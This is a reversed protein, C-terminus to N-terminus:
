HTCLGEFAGQEQTTKGSRSFLTAQIKRSSANAAQIASEVVHPALPELWAELCSLGASSVTPDVAPPADPPGSVAPDAALTVAPDAAPPVAAHAAPDAPDAARARGPIKNRNSSM